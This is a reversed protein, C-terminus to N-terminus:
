INGDDVKWPRYSVHLKSKRHEIAGYTSVARFDQYSNFKGLERPLHSKLARYFTFVSEVHLYIV